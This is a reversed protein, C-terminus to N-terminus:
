AISKMKHKKKVVIELVGGRYRTTISNLLAEAPVGFVWFFGRKVGNAEKRALVIIERKESNVRINIDNEDIGLLNMVISYSSPNEVMTHPPNVGAGGTTMASGRFREPFLPPLSQLLALDLYQSFHSM